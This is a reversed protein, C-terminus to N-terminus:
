EVPVQREIEQLLVTIDTDHELAEAEGVPIAMHASISRLMRLVQTTEQESLLAIQLHLHDRRDAQATLRNQNVLVFSAVLVGEMSVVMTLLGFPYPDFQWAAPAATNWAAWAAFGLVHAAVFTLTGMVRSFALSVREARRLSRRKQKLLAAIRSVNQTAVHHAHQRDV